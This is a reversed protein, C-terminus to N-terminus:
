QKVWGDRAAFAIHEAAEEERENNGLDFDIPVFQASTMSHPSHSARRGFPRAPNAGGGISVVRRAVCKSALDDYVSKYQAVKM